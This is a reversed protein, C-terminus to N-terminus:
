DGGTEAQQEAIYFSKVLGIKVLPITLTMLKKQGHVKHIAKM